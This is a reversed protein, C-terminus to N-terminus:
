KVLINNYKGCSQTVTRISYHIFQDNVGDITTRHGPWSTATEYSTSWQFVDREPLKAANDAIIKTRIWAAEEDWQQCM